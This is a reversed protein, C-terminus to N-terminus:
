TIEKESIKMVVDDGDQFMEYTIKQAGTITIRNTRIELKEVFKDDIDLTAKGSDFKSSAYTITVKNTKTTESVTFM